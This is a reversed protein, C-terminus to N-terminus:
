PQPVDVELLQGCDVIEDHESAAYPAVVQLDPQFIRSDISFEDVSRAVECPFRSARFGIGAKEQNRVVRCKRVDLRLEVLHCTVLLSELGLRAICPMRSNPRARVLHSYGGAVLHHRRCALREWMRLERDDVQIRLQQVEVAVSAIHRNQRSARVSACDVNLDHARRASLRYVERLGIDDKQTAAGVALLAGCRSAQELLRSCQSVVHFAAANQQSDASTELNEPAGPQEAVLGHGPQSDEVDLRLTCLASRVIPEDSVHRQFAWQRFRGDDAVLVMGPAREEAISALREAADYVTAALAVVSSIPEVAGSVAIDHGRVQM